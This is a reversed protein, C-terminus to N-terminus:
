DITAFVDIGGLVAVLLHCPSLEAIHVATEIVMEVTEDGFIDAIGVEVDLLQALFEIHTAHLEIAFAFGDCAFRGDFEDAENSQLCGVTQQIFAVLGNGLNGVFDPESRWTIECLAVLFLEVLRGGIYLFSILFALSFFVLWREIIPRLTAGVPSSGTYGAHSAPIRVALHFRWPRKSFTPHTTPNSGVVYLVM